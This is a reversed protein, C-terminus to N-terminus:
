SYLLDAVQGEFIVSLHSGIIIHRDFPALAADPHRLTDCGRCGLAKPPVRVLFINLEVRLFSVFVASM